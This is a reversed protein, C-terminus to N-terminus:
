SGSPTRLAAEAGAPAPPPSEPGSPEGNTTPEGLLARAERRAPWCDPERCRRWTADLAERAFPVAHHYYLGFNETAARAQAPTVTGDLGEDFLMALGAIKAAQGPAVRRVTAALEPSSPEDHWWRALVTLCLRESGPCLEKVLTRRLEPTLGGEREMWARLLSNSAGSEAAATGATPPLAAKRGTFFARAARHSLRPHLLTHVEGPFASAEVVGLPLLEHALLQPFTKIGARGLGALVDPRQFREELRELDLRAEPMLGLLLLDIPQAFWVAVRDFVADYTRLVMEITARDTEYTHFWQAYVGGPRLRDRAAELFEHSFLMEVGSVWPNSPESAIVDFSGQSRLLARYADSRRLEVKPSQSAALNGEDFFPAADLVGRSIEAVVVREMSDLAAFEGATVGTGYGIVFADSCSETLLCPILAVLSMTAYDGLLSGDSKGNTFISQAPRGRDTTPEKVTVTTTPDDDHYLVRLQNRSVLPDIGELTLSDPARKRFLGASMREPEWAPMVWLAALVALAAGALATRPLPFMRAALLLAAAAVAAVSLRYVHHLDLWYLLAYGGLLAGLLNGVTNWSYLRGAVHGLEGHVRRLEHFLLPLSAGSLGVPIALVALVGLFVAAYYPHFAFEVDRFLARVVHAAWPTRDMAPYLLALSGALLAPCLVVAARPIRGFASVALSGVAICLVFVAVVMAFTFHSPGFALGGVRILVTQVAMMAFGLLLAAAAFVAMGEVGRAAAVHGAPEAASVVDARGRVGLLAFIGGALLNAAGMWRLTDPIGLAPILLFAAALAGVFAGAANFGYVLAHFRTADDLSRALAQTLLPITGGMLVTPPGILLATLVVDAVFAGPDHQFPLRVSLGLAGAFLLPFALAWLGIAGEVAGYVLLLRPPRGTERARALLRQSVRGFLAYGLSLGGLFIALVAATAEAHSGLLIALGKQWTVEYVLGTFGTLVTLILAAARTM